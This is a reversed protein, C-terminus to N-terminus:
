QVARRLSYSVAHLRQPQGLMMAARDYSQWGLSGARNLHRLDDFREDVGWRATGGPHHFVAEWDMHRDAGFEGTATYDLRAYEWTTVSWHHRATRIAARRRAVTMRGHVGDM